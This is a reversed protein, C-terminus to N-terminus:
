DVQPKIHCHLCARVLVIYLYCLLHYSPKITNWYYTYMCKVQVGICCAEHVASDITSWGGGVKHCMLIKQVKTGCKKIIFFLLYFIGSMGTDRKLISTYHNKELKGFKHYVIRTCVKKPNTFTRNESIHSSCTKESKHSHQNESIHSNFNKESNHQRGTNLLSLHKHNKSLDNEQIQDGHDYFGRAGFCSKM